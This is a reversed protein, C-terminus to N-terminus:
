RHGRTDARWGTTPAPEWSPILLGEETAWAPRRHISLPSMTHCWNCVTVLNEYTDPGGRGRSKRHHPHLGVTEWCGDLRVVCRFGDRRFVSARLAEDVPVDGGHADARTVRRSREVHHTTSARRACARSRLGVGAAGRAGSGCVTVRGAAM